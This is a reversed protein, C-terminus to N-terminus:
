SHSLWSLGRHEIQQRAHRLVRDLCRTEIRLRQHQHPDGREDRHVRRRHRIGQVELYHTLELDVGLLNPSNKRRDGRDDTGSPDRRRRALDHPRESELDFDSFELRRALLTRFRTPTTVCRHQTVVGVCLGSESWRATLAYLVVINLTLATLAWLPYNSNGLFGLRAFINAAVLIITFRRAWGQGAILGLGALFLLVGGIMM